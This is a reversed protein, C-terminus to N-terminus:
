TVVRLNLPRNGGSEKWYGILGKTQWREAEGLLASRASQVQPIWEPRVRATWAAFRDVHEMVRAVRDPDEYFNLEPCHGTHLAVLRIRLNRQRAIEGFEMMSGVSDEQVIFSLTIGFWRQRSARFRMLRDLNAIVEEFPLGREIKAYSEANGANLSLTIDGLAANQIQALAKDSFLSGNTYIDVEADPFRRVDLEELMRWTYPNALSEGGLMTLQKLTPYLERLEEWMGVPIERTPTRGYLCMICDYNCYTSPNLVVYMPRGRTVERREAIDEAILLQNKVFADAGRQVRFRKEAFRLDHLRLCLDNCRGELAHAGMARREERYGPGNWVELLSQEFINGRDGNTWDAGCQRVRGDPDSIELSTWPTWCIVEPQRAHRLVEPAFFELRRHEAPPAGIPVAAAKAEDSLAGADSWQCSAALACSACAALTDNPASRPGLTSKWVDQRAVWAQPMVCPPLYGATARRHASFRVNPAEILTRELAAAPITVPQGGWDQRELELWVPRPWFRLALPVVISFTRPRVCLRAETALGLAEAEAIVREGDGVGLAKILAEGAAEIQVRVGFVGAAALRALVERGLSRAPAEIWVKRPAPRARNDALFADLHPWATADGGGLTIETAEEGLVAALSPAAEGPRCSACAPCPAACAPSVM